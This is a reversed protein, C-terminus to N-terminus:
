PSVLSAGWFGVLALVFLAIAGCAFRRGRWMEFGRAGLLAGYLVWAAVSWITKAVAWHGVAAVSVVGGIMGITLMGFGLILLRFGIVDLQDISPLLRFLPWLRHSKLQREQLLYMASTVFGLAFAGFAIIGIAAHSEVWPSRRLPEARAVDIPALLSVLGLVLVVPATFAGLFSVRYSPGILLYFLVASWAVFVQVEYLNTLPCRHIHQGRMVLAVTHLVFGTVMLAVNRHHAASEGGTNRLRRVTLGCAVAYFAMAGWLFGRDTM